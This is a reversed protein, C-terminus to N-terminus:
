LKLFSEFNEGLVLPLIKESLGLSLLRKLEKGPDWMPYDSGFFIHTPDFIAFGNRAAEWGGFGMTSSTDVYVNPLVLCQRASEWQSWGGFHAAIFRMEPFLKALRAMRRPASWGFRFDGVHAVLFLNEARMVDYLPLLRDDDLDFRQIDPHLKIGALGLAKMRRVEGAFDPYDIHMTGVGILEPHARCASAIFSNISEVQHAATASSFIVARSIGAEAMRATLDEVTGPLDDFTEVGRMEPSVAGDYFRSTARVAAPAVAEPFVHVHTDIIRM